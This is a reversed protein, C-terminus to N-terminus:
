GDEDSDQEGRALAKADQEQELIRAAEKAEKEKAEMKEKRAALRQKLDKAANFVGMTASHCVFCKSSKAFQKLACSECFYHGCKTVVPEKFSQRCIMCAFPLDFDQELEEDQILTDRTLFRDPDLAEQKKRAQEQEWERDIQWGAKYDGRDHMFKCSDGYGCFGTEKYDKCVDPQYDFRSSLRVYAATRM